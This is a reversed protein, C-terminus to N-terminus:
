IKEKEVERIAQEMRAFAEKPSVGKIGNARDQEAKYLVSAIHASSLRENSKPKRAFSLIEEMTLKSYDKGCAKRLALMDIDGLESPTVLVGKTEAAIQDLEFYKEETKKAEM